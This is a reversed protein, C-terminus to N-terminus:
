SDWNILTKIKKDPQDKKLSIAICKLPLSFYTLNYYLKVDDSSKIINLYKWIM